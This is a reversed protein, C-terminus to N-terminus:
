GHCVLVGDCNSRLLEDSVAEQIALLHDAERKKNGKRQRAQHKQNSSHLNNLHKVWVAGIHGFSLDRLGKGLHVLLILLADIDKAELGCETTTLHRECREQM